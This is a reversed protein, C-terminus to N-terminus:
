HSTKQAILCISYDTYHFLKRLIPDLLIPIPRFFLTCGWAIHLGFRKTLARQVKTIKQSFFGSCFSIEEIQLNAGSCLERLMSKTYGRRVHWGNEITEYPGLDEKSIAHFFKYPTTLFLLGGPKLIREMDKMLQIDNLIHEINEFNILIDFSNSHIKNLNRLDQNIFTVKKRFKKPVRSEAKIVDNVDWTFGTVQYGNKALAISYAGNGCGLDGITQGYEAKGLRQSLWLLRDTM